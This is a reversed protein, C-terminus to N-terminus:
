ETSTLPINEHPHKEHKERKTGLMDTSVYKGKETRLFSLYYKRSDELKDCKLVIVKFNHKRIGIEFIDLIDINEEIETYLTAEGNTVQLDWFRIREGNKFLWSVEKDKM